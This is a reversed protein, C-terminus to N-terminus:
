KFKVIKAFSDADLSAGGVLAGDIDSKAMLEAINEGKVSGGYQIRVKEASEAGTIEAVVQRIFRCVANADEASATRGTGIAWVPEYAIVMEAVQEASLGTLGQRVQRGVVGETIGAERQELTEGVCMIPILENAFAAKVKKNVTDDTEGFYQRRESHGIIVYTCGVEKVMAPAIEGTFAGQAEWHMNQAGLRLPGECIALHVPYLATFTPCIVIEVDAVGATIGCLERVLALAEGVTKHMKWNGAIIPKRM